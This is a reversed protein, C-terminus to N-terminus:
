GRVEKAVISLDSDDPAIDYLLYFVENAKRSTKYPGFNHEKGLSRMNVYYEFTVM